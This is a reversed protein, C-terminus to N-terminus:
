RCGPTVKGAADGKYRITNFHLHIPRREVECHFTSARTTWVAALEFKEIVVFICLSRYPFPQRHEAPLPRPM